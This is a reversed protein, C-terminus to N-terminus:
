WNGGRLFDDHQNGSWIEPNFKMMRRAKLKDELERRKNELMVAGKIYKQKEDELDKLMEREWHSKKRNEVTNVMKDNDQYESQKEKRERAKALMDKIFGM